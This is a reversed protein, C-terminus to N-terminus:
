AEAPAPAGIVQVWITAAHGRVQAPHLTQNAIGATTYLQASVVAEADRDRALEQLRHATNITEGLATFALHRGFGIDGVIARGCHLGIGYRLTQRAEQRFLSQLGDLRLRVADIAALAQRCATEPDTELGFLALVGDGLFQVPRGGSEVVGQTVAAVFRGLLFVSDFPTRQQALATSGRLDIFMAAVFREEGPTRAQQGAVFEGALNPPILPAVVIDTGPRLQCALRIHDPNAGISDLLTREHPSPPPVSGDAGLLRIRCTSCRGRGGCVSAHRIGHLRSADLVTLGRAVKIRRGGPYEIAILGRRHEAVRRIARALLVLAIAAVWSVLFIDRLHALFAAQPPTGTVSLPLHSAHFGPQALDRVIERGGQVFGLMALVPILIAAVLFVAKWAAFWRRLRLLFYLGLCAHSWAAILVAMQLLGMVPSTVWLAALEAIYGKNLGYVALAGRTVSLHNAVLLPFALGLGLQAAEAFSWRFNRRAYLAYLGLAMHKLLAAYLVAGGVPGQWIWKQVLLMADAAAINANCLAHNLLHTFVYAFLVLGSFLRLRRVPSGLHWAPGPEAPPQDTTEPM